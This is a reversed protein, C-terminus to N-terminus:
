EVMMELAARTLAQGFALAVEPDLELYRSGVGTPTFQVEVLRRPDSSGSGSKWGRVAISRPWPMPEGTTGKPAEAYQTIRYNVRIVTM